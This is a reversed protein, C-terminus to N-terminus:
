NQQRRQNKSLQRELNLIQSKLRQIESMVDTNPVDTYVKRVLRLDEGITGTLGLYLANPENKIIANLKQFLEHVNCCDMGNMQHQDLEHLYEVDFHTLRSKEKIYDLIERVDPAVFYPEYDGGVLIDRNSDITVYANNDGPLEITLNDIDTEIPYDPFEQSIYTRIDKLNM